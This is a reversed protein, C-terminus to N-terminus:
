SMFLNIEDLDSSKVRGSFIKLIKYGKKLYKNVETPDSTQVIRAVNELKM